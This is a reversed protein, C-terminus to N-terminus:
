RETQPCVVARRVRWNTLAAWLIKILVAFKKKLLNVVQTAIHQRCLKHSSKWKKNPQITDSISPQTHITVPSQIQDSYLIAFNEVVYMNKKTQPQLIKRPSKLEAASTKRRM